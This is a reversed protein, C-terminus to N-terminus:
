DQERRMEKHRLLVIELAQHHKIGLTSTTIVADWEWEQVNM